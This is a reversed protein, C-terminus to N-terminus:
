EEEYVNKEDALIAQLIQNAYKLAKDFDPCDRLFWDANVGAPERQYEPRSLARM